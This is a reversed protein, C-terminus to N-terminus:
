EPAKGSVVFQPHGARGKDLIGISRVLVGIRVAGGVQIMYGAGALDETTFAKLGDAAIDRDLSACYVPNGHGGCSHLAPLRARKNFLDAVMVALDASSVVTRQDSTKMVTTFGVIDTSM